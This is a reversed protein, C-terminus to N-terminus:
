VNQKPPNPPPRPRKHRIAAYHPSASQHSKREASERSAIAKAGQPSTPDGTYTPSIRMMPLDNPPKSSAQSVAVGLFVGIGLAAPISLCLTVNRRKLAPLQLSNSDTLALTSKVKFPSTSQQVVKGADWGPAEGVQGPLDHTDELESLAEDAPEGPLPLEVSESSLSPPQVRTYRSPM